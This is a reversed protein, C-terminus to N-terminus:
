KSSLARLAERVIASADPSASSGRFAETAAERARAKAFGLSVLAAIADELAERERDSVGSVVEGGSILRLLSAKERLDAVVRRAM